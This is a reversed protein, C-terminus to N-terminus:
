AASEEPQIDQKLPEEQAQIEKEQEAILLAKKEEIRQKRKDYIGNYNDEIAKYDDPMHKKAFDQLMTAVANGRYANKFNDLLYDRRIIAKTKATLSSIIELKDAESLYGSKEESVGVLAYNERRLSSLLFYYVMKEEDASFKTDTMNVELLKKKTDEITREVAIEKNREDKKELEAIPSTKTHADEIKSATLYVLRVDTAGIEVFINIEGNEHKRKINEREEEYEQMENRYDKLAEEYEESTEYDAIEPTEPETPFGTTYDVPVIEIGMEEIRKAVEANTRYMTKSVSAYPYESLLNLTEDVMYSAIKENLCKRNSCKGCGGECFLLLHNTNHPCLACVSKDFDYHELNTTYDREIANAVESAKLGRWNSYGNSNRLHQEYVERQIDEGYRCIENAVSISLLENEMLEAIEPILSTFKLRSRIYNESKGFLLSLSKVDHRGSDILRQYANAEEMPTVDKRQLNETIAIEEAEEDTYNSITAPITELGVILSAKYRREGFVIEYRDTEPIPRVNIPQLVGQQRISEALENLSEEDFQKRPNYTSPQINALAILTYSMERVSQNTAM